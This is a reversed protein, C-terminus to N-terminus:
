PLGRPGFFAPCTMRSVVVQNPMGPDCLRAALHMAEGTADHAPSEAEGIEGLVVVGSPIGV